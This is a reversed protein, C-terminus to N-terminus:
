YYEHRIRGDYKKEERHLAELIVKQVDDPLVASTMKILEILSAVPSSNLTKTKVVKKKPASKKATTKVPRKVAKKTIKKKIAM